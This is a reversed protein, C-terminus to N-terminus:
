LSCRRFRGRRAKRRRLAMFLGAMGSGLLGSIVTAPEPATDVPPPQPNVVPPPNVIPPPPSVVPPPPPPHGDTPPPPPPVAGPLPPFLVLTIASVMWREVFSDQTTQETNQNKEATGSVAPGADHDTPATQEKSYPGFGMAWSDNTLGSAVVHLEGYELSATQCNTLIRHSFRNVLLDAHARPVAWSMLAAAAVVAIFASTLRPRLCVDM